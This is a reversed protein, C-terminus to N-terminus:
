AAIKIHYYIRYKSSNTLNYITTVEVKVAPVVEAYLVEQQQGKDMVIERVM